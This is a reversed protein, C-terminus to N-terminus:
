RRLLAMIESFHEKHRKQFNNTQGIYFPIITDDDFSDVYLMYIGAEILNSNSTVENTKNQEIIRIVKSRIESYTPQANDSLYLKEEKEVM